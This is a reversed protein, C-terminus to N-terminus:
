AEYRLIALGPQREPDHPSVHLRLPLRLHEDVQDVEPHVHLFRAVRGTELMRTRRRERPTRHDGAAAGDAGLRADGVRGDLREFLLSVLHDARASREAAILRDQDVGPGADQVAAAIRALIAARHPISTLSFRACDGRGRPGSPSPTKTLCFPAEM